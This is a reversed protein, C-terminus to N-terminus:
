INSDPIIQIILTILIILINHLTIYIMLAEFHDFHHYIQRDSTRIFFPQVLTKFIYSRARTHDDASRLDHASWYCLM